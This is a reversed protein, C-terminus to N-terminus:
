EEEVVCLDFQCGIAQLRTALHVVAGKLWRDSKGEIIENLEEVTMDSLCIDQWNGDRMVRMYIGDLNRQIM